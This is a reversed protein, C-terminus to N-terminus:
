RVPPEMRRTLAATPQRTGHGAAGWFVRCCSTPQAVRALLQPAGAGDDGVNAATHWGVKREM